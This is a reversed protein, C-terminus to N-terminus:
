TGCPSYKRHKVYSAITATFRTTSKSAAFRTVNLANAKAPFDPGPLVTCQCFEYAQAGAYVSLVMYVSPFRRKGMWPQNRVYNM